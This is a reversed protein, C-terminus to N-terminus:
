ATMAAKEWGKLNKEAEALRRQNLRWEFMIPSEQRLRSELKDRNYKQSYLRKALNKAEWTNWNKMASYQAEYRAIVKDMGELGFKHPYSQTFKPDAELKKIDAKLNNVLNRAKNVQDQAISTPKAPVQITKSVESLQNSLEKKADVRCQKTKSICSAGCSKGKVCNRKKKAAIM